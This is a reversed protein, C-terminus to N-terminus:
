SLHGNQREYGYRDLWAADYRVELRRKSVELVFSELELAAGEVLKYLEPGLEGVRFNLIHLSFVSSARDAAVRCRMHKFSVGEGKGKQFCMGNEILTMLYSRGKPADGIDKMVVMEDDVASM